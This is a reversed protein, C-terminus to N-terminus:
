SFHQLGNGTEDDGLVGASSLGVLIKQTAEIKVVARIKGDENIVHRQIKGRMRVAFPVRVHVGHNRLKHPAHVELLARIVGIYAVITRRSRGMQLKEFGNRPVEEVLFAAHISELASDPPHRVLQARPVHQKAALHIVVVARPRMWVAVVFQVAQQRIALAAIGVAEADRGATIVAFPIRTVLNCLVRNRQHTEEAREVRCGASARLPVAQLALPM